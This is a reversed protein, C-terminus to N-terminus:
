TSASCPLPLILHPQEQQKNNEPLDSRVASRLLVTFALEKGEGRWGSCQQLTVDVSDSARRMDPGKPNGGDGGGIVHLQRKSHLVGRLRSQVEPAEVSNAKFDVIRCLPCTTIILADTSIM